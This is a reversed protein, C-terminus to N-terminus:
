NPWRTVSVSQTQNSHQGTNRHDGHIWYLVVTADCWFYLPINDTSIRLTSKVWVALRTALEAGCLEIRPISLPKTPTVKSKAILLHTHISSDTYQIRIYVNAAYALTSGDCFTHLQLSQVRNPSFHIWRPIAIHEINPLDILFKKWQEHLLEPLVDDWNLSKRENILNNDSTSSNHSWIRKLIM